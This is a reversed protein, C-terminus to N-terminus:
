KTTKPLHLKGTKRNFGLLKLIWLESKTFKGIGGIEIKTKSM